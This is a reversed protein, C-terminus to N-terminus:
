NRNQAVVYSVVRLDFGWLLDQLMCHFEPVHIHLSDLGELVLDAMAAADGVRGPMGFDGGRVLKRPPSEFGASM